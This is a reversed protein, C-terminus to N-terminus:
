SGTQTGPLDASALVMRDVLQDALITMLRKRADREAALTAAVSGTASYGTFSRVEGTQFATKEGAHRLSYRLRGILQFRTTVGASTKGLTDETVKIKLGLTYPADPGAAGMREEFRRTVQYQDQTAPEDIRIASQLARASGNPGYAPTFGCGGLAPVFALAGLLFNRRDSLWM